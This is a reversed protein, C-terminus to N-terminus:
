GAAEAARLAGGDAGRASVEASAPWSAHASLRKGARAARRRRALDAFDKAGGQAAERQRAPQRPAHARSGPLAQSEGAGGRPREDLYLLRRTPRFGPLAPCDRVLARPPPPSLSPRRQSADLCIVKFLLCLPFSGGGGICRSLGQNPSSAPSHQSNLSGLHYDNTCRPIAFVAM